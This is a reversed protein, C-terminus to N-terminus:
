RSREEVDRWWKKKSGQKNRKEWNKTKPQLEILSQLKEMRESVVSQVEKGVMSEEVYKELYKLTKQLNISADYWFGWDESLLTAVYKGNIINEGEEEGVINAAFLLIIDKIDKENIEHIQLKELLLDTPSATLANLNLRGEKPNSGFEVTHSFELKDFFVDVGYKKEPHHFMMRSSGHLLLAYQDVQYGLEELLKRVENRQRSYAALDIDTFKRESNLRNLKHFLDEHRWANLRIGVAGLVRLYLGREAAEKVLTVADELIIEDERSM